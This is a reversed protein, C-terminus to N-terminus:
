GWVVIIMCAWFVAGALLAVILPWNVNRFTVKQPSRGSIVERLRANEARLRELYYEMAISESMGHRENLITKNDTM